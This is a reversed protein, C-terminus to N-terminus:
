PHKTSCQHRGSRFDCGAVMSLIRSVMLRTGLYIFLVLRSTRAKAWVLTGGDLSQGEELIVAAPDKPPASVTVKSALQAQQEEVHEEENGGLTTLTNSESVAGALRSPGASASTSAEAEAASKLREREAKRLMSKQKRLAPTDLMEVIIKGDATHIINPEVPNSLASLAKASTTAEEVESKVESLPSSVNSSQVQPVDVDMADKGKAATNRSEAEAADALLQLTQNDAASSSLM